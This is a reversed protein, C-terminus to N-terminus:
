GSTGFNPFLIAQAEHAVPEVKEGAQYAYVRKHKACADILAQNLARKVALVDPSIQAQGDFERMLRLIEETCEDHVTRIIM